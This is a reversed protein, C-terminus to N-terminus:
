YSYKNDSSLNFGFDNVKTKNLAFANKDKKPAEPDMASIVLYYGFQWELRRVM